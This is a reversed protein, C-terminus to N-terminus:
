EVGRRMTDINVVVREDREIVATPNQVLADKGGRKVENSGQLVACPLYATATSRTPSRYLRVCSLLQPVRRMRHDDTMAGKGCCDGHGRPVTSVKKQQSSNQESYAAGGLNSTGQRINIGAWPFTSARPQRVHRRLWLEGQPPRQRQVQLEIKRALSSKNTARQSVGYRKEKKKSARLAGAPARGIVSSIPYM